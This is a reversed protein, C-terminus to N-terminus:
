QGILIDIWVIKGITYIFKGKLIVLYSRNEEKQWGFYFKM